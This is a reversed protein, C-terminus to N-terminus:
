AVIAEVTELPPQTNEPMAAPMIRLRKPHSGNGGNLPAQGDGSVGGVLPRGAGSQHGNQGSQNQETIAKMDILGPLFRNGERGSGDYLLEYLYGQSHGPHRHLALYEM